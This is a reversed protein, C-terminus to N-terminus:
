IPWRAARRPWCVTCCIPPAWQWLELAGIPVWPAGMSAGGFTVFTLPPAGKREGRSSEMGARAGQKARLNTHLDGRVAVQLEMEPRECRLGLPPESPQEAGFNSPERAAGVQRPENFVLLRALLRVIQPQALSSCPWRDTRNRESIISKNAQFSLTALIKAKSRPHQKGAKASKQSALPAAVPAGDSPAEAPRACSDALFRSCTEGKALKQCCKDGGGGCVSISLSIGGM